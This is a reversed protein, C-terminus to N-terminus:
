PKEPNLTEPKYAEVTFRLGAVRLGHPKRTKPKERVGEDGRVRFM